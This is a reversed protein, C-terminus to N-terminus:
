NCITHCKALREVARNYGILFMSDVLMKWGTERNRCDIRRYCKQPAPHTKTKHSVRLNVILSEFRGLLSKPLLYIFVPRNRLMSRLKSLAPIPYRISFIAPVSSHSSYVSLFFPRMSKRVFDMASFYIGSKKHEVFAVIRNTYVRAVEKEPSLSIINVIHHFLSPLHSSLLLFHCFKCVFFNNFHSFNVRIPDETDSLDCFHKSDIMPISPFYNSPLSPLMNRLYKVNNVDKSRNQTPPLLILMVLNTDNHNWAPYRNAGFLGRISREFGHGITPKSLGAIAHADFCDPRLIRKTDRVISSIHCGKPRTFCDVDHVCRWDMRKDSNAHHRSFRYKLHIPLFKCRSGHWCDRVM